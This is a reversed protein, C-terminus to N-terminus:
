KNCGNKREKKEENKQLNTKKEKEKDYNNLIDKALYEFVENINQNTETSTEFFAVNYEEAM